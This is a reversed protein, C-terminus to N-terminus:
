AGGETKRNIQRNVRAEVLRHILRTAGFGLLLLVGGGGALVWVFAGDFSGFMEHDARDM